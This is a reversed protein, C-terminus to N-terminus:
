YEDSKKEKRHNYTRLEDTNREDNRMTLCGHIRERAKSSDNKMKKPGKREKEKGTSKKAFCMCLHLIRAPLIFTSLANENGKKGRMKTTHQFFSHFSLLGKKSSVISAYSASSSSLFVISNLTIHYIYSFLFFVFDLKMVGCLQNIYLCAPPFTFFVTNFDIFFFQFKVKKRKQVNITFM